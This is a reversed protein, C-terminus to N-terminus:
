SRYKYTPRYGLICVFYYLRKYSAKNSTSDRKIYQCGILQSMVSFAHCQTQIQRVQNAHVISYVALM